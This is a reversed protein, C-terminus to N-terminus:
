HVRPANGGVSVAVNDYQTDDTLTLMFRAVDERSVSAGVTGSSLATDYNGAGPANSLGAPRVVVCSVGNPRTHPTAPSLWGAPGGICVNEAAQLDLKTGRLLTSFLASFVWGGFGLRFLQMASDGVGISSVMALRRVGNAAMADLVATTGAEVVKAEGRRNGLCSLVLDAGKLSTGLRDFANASSVDVTTTSLLKGSATIKSPDRACAVVSHGQELALRVVHAGIGGTAGIVAIRM